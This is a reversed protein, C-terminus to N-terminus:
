QSYAIGLLLYSKFYMNPLKSLFLEEFPHHEFQKWCQKNAVNELTLTELLNAM